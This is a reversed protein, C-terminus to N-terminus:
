DFFSFTKTVAQQIQKVQPVGNEHYRKIVDANNQHLVKHFTNADAAALLMRRAELSISPSRIVADEPTNNYGPFLFTKVVVRGKVIEADFPCYGLVFCPDGADPLLNEVGLIHKVYVNYTLADEEGCPSYLRLANQGNAMVTPEFYRCTLFYDRCVMFDLYTIEGHWRMREFMQEIAHRYFGVPWMTPGYKALREDTPCFIPNMEDSVTPAFGFRIVIERGVPVLKFYYLPLPKRRFKEPLQSFIHQGVLALTKILFYLLELTSDPEGILRCRSEIITPIRDTGEDRILKLLQRGSEGGLLSTTLELGEVIDRIHRVHDPDGNAPDIRIPPLEQRGAKKGQFLQESKRRKEAKKRKKDRRRDSQSMSRM